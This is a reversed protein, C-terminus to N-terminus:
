QPALRDWEAFAIPAFIAVISATFLGISLPTSMEFRALGNITQFCAFAFQLAFSIALCRITLIRREPKLGLWRLAWVALPLFQLAHIAIGHPFKTVGAAGYVEADLGDAIRRYGYSSIAFGVLCSAVLFIMGARVSFAYDPPLELKGFCRICFYVIGAFAVSILWLMSSDVGADYVSDRNFHSAVGRWRQLTILGVEITLSVSVIWAVPKDLIIPRLNTALWGLSCLTLGTSVGFLIPKRWSVSGAWSGGDSLWVALHILGSALLIIGSLTLIDRWSKAGLGVQINEGEIKAM